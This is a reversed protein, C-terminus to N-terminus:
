AVLRVEEGADVPLDEGLAVHEAQVVETGEGRTVRVVFGGDRGILQDGASDARGDEGAGQGVVTRVHRHLVPRGARRCRRRGRSRGSRGSRGSRPLATGLYPEFALTVLHAEGGADGTQRTRVPETYWWAAVDEVHPARAARLYTGASRSPLATGVPCLHPEEPEPRGYFSM